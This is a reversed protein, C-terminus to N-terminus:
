MRVKGSGHKFHAQSVKIKFVSQIRTMEMQGGIIQM